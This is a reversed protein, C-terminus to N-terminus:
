IMGKRVDEQAQAYDEHRGMDLWYETIPFSVVPRGAELLKQILDTMDFREGEPIFDCAGPELLYTGANIFFSLSPKEQLRTVQAEECEVVGFPVQLDYKRVGITLDAHYARHFALMADFPVGTLIDGNIVLMTDDRNKLLKLGGATGLPNEEQLYNLHVGFAEGNGFHESIREPLYHTTLNVDKIGARRLQAITLELLPRDGVTLMPKPVNETLPWLRTGLGGAMVVASLAMGREPVIDKRLILQQIRGQKDVVPLQSVDHQNMLRLAETSSVPFFATIPQASAIARCPEDFARRRLIARRFDGDTLSGLLRRNADCVLLIGTTAKDLQAMAEAISAEPTVISARLRQEIGFEDADVALDQRLLLEQVRGAADLAPLHHIDHQNMVRLAAEAGVPSPVTVPNQSAIGSCPDDLSRGKLVARRIDGNTLLGCLRRETDCLLLAGTGARDLQAMAQAISAGPAIISDKLRKEREVNKM